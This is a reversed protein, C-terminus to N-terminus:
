DVGASPIDSTVCSDTGYEDPLMSSFRIDTRGRYVFIRDTACVRKPSPVHPPFDHTSAGCPSSLCAVRGDFVLLNEPYEYDFSV